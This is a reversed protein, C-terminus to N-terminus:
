KKRDRKPVIRLDSSSFCRGTKIDYISGTVCDVYVMLEKGKMLLSTIKMAREEKEGLVLVHKNVTEGKLSKIKDSPLFPEHKSISILKIEEIKVGDINVEETEPNTTTM